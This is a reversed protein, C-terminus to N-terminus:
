VLQVHSTRTPVHPGALLGDSALARVASEVGTLGSLLQDVFPQLRARADANTVKPLLVRAA